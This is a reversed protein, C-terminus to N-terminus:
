QRLGKLYSSFLRYVDRRPGAFIIEVLNEAEEYRYIVRYKKLRHSRFGEFEDRLPKGKKPDEILEEIMERLAKKLDPHLKKLYDRATPTYTLRVARM